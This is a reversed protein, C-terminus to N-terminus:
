IGCGREYADALSILLSESLEPGTICMGAPMGNKYNGCPVSVSPLGALNACVTFVDSEYYSADGIQAGELVAGSPTVPGLVCSCKEFISKYENKILNRMKLAKHYYKNYGQATLVYNGLLIRKKVEDGFGETRSAKILEDYIETNNVACGYRVGDFRALNSAAEASSIIYYGSVAFKLSPMSCHVLEAGMSEYVKAAEDILAATEPTCLKIFEDLLAIKLGKIEKGCLRTFDEGEYRCTMDKKDTACVCSLVYGADEAYRSIVGIQELSSAYSILGYRSVRGYTPKLGVVGCWSAPQRVSGGTDSGLASACLNKAVAAASGGSSGGAVYSKDVPNKVGGFVSTSSTNGMGFEDMNTKGLIVAGQNLLKEVAEANYMPVFDSLMKSACTTKISKTCINDKVALPIGTMAQSNGSNIIKQAIEASKIAKEECVTIFCNCDDKSIKSLYDLTLEVCGIEKNDLAKRLSKITM